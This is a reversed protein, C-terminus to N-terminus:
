AGGGGGGGSGGGGGLGDIWTVPTSFFLCMFACQWASFCLMFRTAVYSQPWLCIIYLYYVFLICIIFLMYVAYFCCIFLAGSLCFILLFSASIGEEKQWEVAFTNCLHFCSFDRSVQFRSVCPAQSVISSM